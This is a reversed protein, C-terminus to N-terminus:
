RPHVPQHGTHDFRNGVLDADGRTGCRVPLQHLDDPCLSRCERDHRLSRFGSNAQAGAATAPLQGACLQLHLQRPQLGSRQYRGYLRVVPTTSFLSSDTNFAISSTNPVGGGFVADYAAQTPANAGSPVFSGEPRSTSGLPQLDPGFAVSAFDRESAFLSDRRDYNFALVVNGRDDALNGGLLLSIGHTAGDSEASQTTLGSLQVGEFDQRLKVNVVGALADSGYTASSGGTLIEVSEIMAAPITNLDVVGGTTSPQLRSGDLLVLTRETGLGRLDLWAQGGSGPNNSTTTLSPVLQPLANLVQELQPTGADRFDDSGLTFVPSTAEYDQRLIRSGTVTIEELQEAPPAEQAYAASLTGVGVSSAGSLLALKVAQRLKSNRPM